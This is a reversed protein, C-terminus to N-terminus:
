NSKGRVKSVFFDSFQGKERENRFIENNSFKGKKFVFFFSRRICYIYLKFKNAERQGTASLYPYLSIFCSLFTDFDPLRVQFHIFINKSLNEQRIKKKSFFISLHIEMPTRITNEISNIKFSLTFIYQNEKHKKFPYQTPHSLFITVSIIVSIPIEWMKSCRNQWIEFPM